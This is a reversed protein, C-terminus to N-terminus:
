YNVVGGRTQPFLHPRVCAGHNSHGLHYDSFVPTLCISKISSSSLHAPLCAWFIRSAPQFQHCSARGLLFNLAVAVPIVCGLGLQMPSRAWTPQTCSSLEFYCISQINQQREKSRTQDSSLPSCMRILYLEQLLAVAFGPPVNIITVQTM